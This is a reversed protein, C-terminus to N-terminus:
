EEYLKNALLDEIVEFTDKVKITECSSRMMDRFRDAEEPLEGKANEFKSKNPWQAYAIYEFDDKKHLRSGLSGEFKYIANTLGKWGEIFPDEHNPKVRFSYLVIYM